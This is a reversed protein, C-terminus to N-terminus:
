RGRGGSSRDRTQGYWLTRMQRQLQTEQSPPSPTHEPTAKKNTLREDRDRERSGRERLMEGVMFSGDAGDFNLILRGGLENMSIFGDSSGAGEIVMVQGKKTPPASELIGVFRRGRYAELRNSTKPLKSILEIRKGQQVGHREYMQKMAEVSQGKEEVPLGKAEMYARVVPSLALYPRIDVYTQGADKQANQESAGKYKQPIAEVQNAYDQPKYILMGMNIKKAPTGYSDVKERPDYINDIWVKGEDDIAMAFRLLDGATSKADYEEIKLNTEKEAINDYGSKRYTNIPEQKFNPIFGSKNLLEEGQAGIDM